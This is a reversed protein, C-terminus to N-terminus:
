VLALGKTLQGLVTKSHRSDVEFRIIELGGFSGQKLQNLARIVGEFHHEKYTFMMWFQSFLLKSTFINQAHQVVDLMLQKYYDAYRSENSKIVPTVLVRWKGSVYPPLFKPVVEANSADCIAEIEISEKDDVFRFLQSFGFGHDYRASLTVCDFSDDVALQHDRIQIVLINNHSDKIHIDKDIFLNPTSM